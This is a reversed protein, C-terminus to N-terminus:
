LDLYGEHTRVSVGPQDVRVKVRRWKGDNRQESPYYGIAYQERLERLIEVFIPEIESASKAPITRGGSLEVLERLSAAQRRYDARTRWASTRERRDDGDAREGPELLRIWYVMAQSRRAHELVERGDIASHTDIGDSLLVVLRRGQRNGLFKLATYLSDNVSTGGQGTAGIFGATLVEPVSSFPTSNQIVDSFVIVKGQDLKHMGEIFATAGSRTAELKSGYMSASSDIMLVATFPIDGREFTVLQQAKGEDTITFDEQNLDDVSKRDRTVTVYLQQLDVSYEAAIPVPATNVENRAQSGKVDTAVVEIRRPRNEDGLDIRLRWPPGSLAGVPRGDVFFTLDRVAEVSVVDAELIIEGIVEDGNTPYVLHTWIRASEDASATLLAAGATLGCILLRIPKLNV